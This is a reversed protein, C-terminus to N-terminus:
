VMTPTICLSPGFQRVFSRLARASAQQPEFVLVLYKDFAEKIVRILATRSALNRRGRSIRLLHEPVCPHDTKDMGGKDTLGDAAALPDGGSKNDSDGTDNVEGVLVSCAYVRNRLCLGRKM